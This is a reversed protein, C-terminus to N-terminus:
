GILWKIIFIVLLSYFGALIDDMMIGVGGKLAEMKRIGLPKFIDFLRFLVFAAIVFCIDFSTVALLPIWVGVTEDIVIRSPDEGWIPILQNSSVIGLGTFVIILGLTIILLNVSSFFLAIVSWIGVGLLAGVTGPAVPFYGAGFGTAIIKHFLIIKNTM